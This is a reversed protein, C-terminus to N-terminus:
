LFIEFVSFAIYKLFCCCCCRNESLPHCCLIKIDSLVFAFLVMRLNPMSKQRFCNRSLPATLSTMLPFHCDWQTLSLIESFILYSSNMSKGSLSSSHLFCGIFTDGQAKVTFNWSAPCLVSLFYYTWCNWSSVCFKGIDSKYGTLIALKQQIGLANLLFGLLVM